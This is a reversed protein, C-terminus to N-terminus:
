LILSTDKAPNIQSLIPVRPPSKHVRYCGHFATLTKVLEFAILKELLVRCRPTLQKEFYLHHVFDLVSAAATSTTMMMMMVVVVVMVAVAVPRIGNWAQETKISITREM